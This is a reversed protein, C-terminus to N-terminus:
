RRSGLTPRFKFLTITKEISLSILHLSARWVWGWYHGSHYAFPFYHLLPLLPTVLILFHSSIFVFFWHYVTVEEKRGISNRDVDPICAVELDRLNLM